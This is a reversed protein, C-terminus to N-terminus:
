DATLLPRGQVTQLTQSHQDCFTLLCKSIYLSWVQRCSHVHQSSIGDCRSAERYLVFNYLLCTVTAVQLLFVFSCSLVVCQVAGQRPVETAPGHGFLLWWCCQRWEVGVVM